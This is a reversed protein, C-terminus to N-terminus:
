EGDVFGSIDGAYRRIEGRRPGMAPSSVMNLCETEGPDQGGLGELGGDDVVEDHRRVSCGVSATKPEFSINM